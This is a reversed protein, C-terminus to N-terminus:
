NQSPLHNRADTMRGNLLQCLTKGGDTSFIVCPLLAAAGSAGYAHCREGAPQAPLGESPASM